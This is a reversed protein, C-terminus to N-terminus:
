SLWEDDDDDEGDDEGRFTLQQRSLSHYFRLM